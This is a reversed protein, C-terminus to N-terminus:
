ISIALHIALYKGWDLGGSSGIPFAESYVLINLDSPPNSPARGIVLVDFARTDQAQLYTLHKDLLEASHGSPIIVCCDTMKIGSELKLIDTIPM